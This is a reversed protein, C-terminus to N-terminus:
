ELTSTECRRLYAAKLYMVAWVIFYGGLHVICLCFYWLPALNASVDLFPYPWQKEGLAHVTWTFFIFVATYIFFYAGRFWFFVMNNLAVDMLLLVLNVGHMSMEIVDVFSYSPFICTWYVLDTVFASGLAIQYLIQMLRGDFNAAEESDPYPGITTTDMASGDEEDPSPQYGRLLQQNQSIVCRQEFRDERRMEKVSAIIAVGFYIILVTFSWQTYYEFIFPGWLVIDYILISLCYLFAVIRIALLWGHHVSPHCTKWVHSRLTYAYGTREYATAVMIALLFAVVVVVICLAFPSYAM